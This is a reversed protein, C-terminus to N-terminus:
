FPRYSEDFEGRKYFVQIPVKSEETKQLKVEVDYLTCVDEKFTFMSMVKYSGSYGANEAWECFQKYLTMINKGHLDGLTTGTIYLWENLASQRRKFYKLLEEASQDIRFHGEEIVTKIGEVAKFLFYKMDDDTIKMMFSPDPKLVKKNLEVLIMRRYLGTTKDVIRPLRNCSFVCTIFPVFSIVARYIDRTSIRDGAVISKFRGTNELVKGDVVDDDINLLKGVTTVIYYDRDFESLGVHSCNVEGVLKNLLNMYTSKGTGGEGKFIVFKQFSNTKLLCYGAIQYLFQIKIPNGDTVEKMFQDIRPSYQPDTDYEWPIYITNIDTKNPTELEGTVLNIIGNKCAIKHWDKNFNEISTKTKLKLFELIEKRGQKSINKSLEFHIIRELEGEDIPKYYIGNFMYFDNYYSIIDYKNLLEEALNSYVNEKQTVDLKEKEKDKERLVTKYLEQNTMPQAFLYENIIKISKEIEDKKLKHCMELKGRWRWLADNRGDGDAYDIFPATAESMLPIMFYPIEEVYDSLRGWVRHPDNCPLVIYGTGNARADVKINLSTKLGSTSKIGESPDRFLIHIGRSTYNYSYSVEFKELINEIKEQSKPNDNNDIDIVCYGKPVVWGIRNGKEVEAVAEEYTLPTTNWHKSKGIPTKYDEHSNYPKDKWKEPDYKPILLYSSNPFIRNLRELYEDVM